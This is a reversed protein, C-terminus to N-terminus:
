KFHYKLPSKQLQLEKRILLLKLHLIVEHIKLLTTSEYISISLLKVHQLPEGGM